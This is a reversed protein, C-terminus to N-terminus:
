EGQEGVLEVDLLSLCLLGGCASSCCVFGNRCLWEATEELASCVCRLQSLRRPRQPKPSEARQPFHAHWCQALAEVVDMKENSECGQAFSTLPLSAYRPWLVLPM